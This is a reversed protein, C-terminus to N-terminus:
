AEVQSVLMRTEAKKQIKSENIIVSNVDICKHCDTDRTLPDNLEPSYVEGDIDRDAFICFWTTNEELSTINHIKDKRIIIFTPATFEKEIGNVEVKAKGTALLSIHDYKHMHGGITEGINIFFKQRIWINAYCGILDYTM